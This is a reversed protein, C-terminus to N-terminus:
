IFLWITSIAIGQYGKPTDASRRDNDSNAASRYIEPLTVVVSTASDSRQVIVDQILENSFRYKSISCQLM